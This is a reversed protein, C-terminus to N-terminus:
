LGFRSLIEKPSIKKKTASKKVSDKMDIDIVREAALDYAFGALIKVRIMDGPQSKKDGEVYVQGDVEPAERYSRGIAINNSEEDRAEILVDFETNVFKENVDQSIKSQLAMLDHFREQATEEPVQDPMEAAITGEEQSYPFIGVRDFQQTELFNKLELFDEDTEGPFGVIFTSRIAIGPIRNRLKTILTEIEERTDPRKMSQLIKNSAHQLPIDVYKCIKEETAIVEILEDTFNKPYSYLIRIWFKGEIKVLEQLLKDLSPKGYLDRGYNTTDQAIINIEKAGNMVLSEVEDYIDEIPRSIFKGRILPISCFACHHDCGEAIKVWVSYSPTTLIRPSTSHYIKEKDTIIVRHGRLTEKVADMIKDWSSTGVIADVEPMEDLLQQGYRQGLCGAVILARCRGTEKFEAMNLLMSISEEKAAQIFACTNVILIDAEVPDTVLEIGQEVLIGLMLETDVLNKSCGLSVFGVKM